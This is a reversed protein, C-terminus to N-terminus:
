LNASRGSASAIWGSSAANQQPRPMLPVSIRAGSPILPVTAPVAASISASASQSNAPATNPPRSWPASTFYEVALVM